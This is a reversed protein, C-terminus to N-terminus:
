WVIIQRIRQHSVQRGDQYLIDIGKYIEYPNWVLMRSQNAVKLFFAFEDGLLTQM